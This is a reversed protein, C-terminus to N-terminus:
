SAAGPNLGAGCKDERPGLHVHRRRPQPHSPHRCGCPHIAAANDRKDNVGPRGTHGTLRDGVDGGDCGPPSCRICGAPPVVHKNLIVEVVGVGFAAIIRRLVAVVVEDTDPVHSATREAVGRVGLVLRAILSICLSSACLACTAPVDVVAGLTAGCGM